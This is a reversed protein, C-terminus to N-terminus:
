IVRPTGWEGWDGPPSGEGKELLLKLEVRHGGDQNKNRGEHPSNQIQSSHPLRAHAYPGRPDLCRSKSSGPPTKKRKLPLNSDEISFYTSTAFVTESRRRKRSHVSEQIERLRHRGISDVTSM